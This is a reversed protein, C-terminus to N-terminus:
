TTNNPTLAHRHLEGTSKHHPAILKYTSSVRLLWEFTPLGSSQGIGPTATATIFQKCVWIINPPTAHGLEKSAFIECFLKLQKGKMLVTTMDIKVWCINKGSRIALDSLIGSFLSHFRKTLLHGSFSTYQSLLCIWGKLFPQQLSQSFKWKM